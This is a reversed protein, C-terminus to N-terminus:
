RKLEKYNPIIVTRKTYDEIECMGTHFNYGRPVNINLKGDKILKFNKSSDYRKTTM